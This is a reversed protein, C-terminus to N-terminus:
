NRPDSDLLGYVFIDVYDKGTFHAKRKVGEKTFGFQELVRQSPINYEYVEGEIRKCGNRFLDDIFIRLAKRSYGFGREEGLALRLWCMQRQTDMWDIRIYGIPKEDSEIIKYEKYKSKISQKIDHRESEENTHYGHDLAMKTIYPDQKWKTIISADEVTVDRLTIAM